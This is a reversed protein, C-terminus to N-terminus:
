GASSCAKKILKNHINNNNKYNKRFETLYLEALANHLFTVFQGKINRNKFDKLTREIKIKANEIDGLKLYCLGLDKKAIGCGFLDTAAELYYVSKSLYEEAEQLKGNYYLGLGQGQMGWGLLQLDGCNEGIKTLKKSLNLSATFYGKYNLLFVIMIIPDGWRKIDGAKIFLDASIRYNGVAEKWHGKHDEHFALGLYSHAIDIPNNTKNSAKISQQFYKKAINHLGLLDCAIGIGMSARAIGSHYNRRNAYNLGKIAIFLLRERNMFFDIWGMMEYIRYIEKLEIKTKDILPKYYFLSFFRHSIQVIIEKVISIRTIWCSSPVNFGLLKLARLFYEIAQQHHGKRFLSEGLKREM